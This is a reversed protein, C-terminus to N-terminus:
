EQQMRHPSRSHSRGSSSTGRSSKVRREKESRREREGKKDEKKKLDLERYKAVLLAIDGLLRSRLSPDEIKTIYLSMTEMYRTSLYNEDLQQSSMMIHTLAVFLCKEECKPKKLYPNVRNKKSLHSKKRPFECDSSRQPM